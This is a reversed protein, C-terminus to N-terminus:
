TFNNISYVRQWHELATTTSYQFSKRHQQTACITWTSVWTKEASYEVDTIVASAKIVSPDTIIRNHKRCNIHVTTATNRDTVTFFSRRMMKWCQISKSIYLEQCFMATAVENATSVTTATPYAPTAFQPSCNRALQGGSPARCCCWTVKEGFRFQDNFVFRSHDKDETHVYLVYLIDTKFNFRACLAVFYIYLTCSRLM